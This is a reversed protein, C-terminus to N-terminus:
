AFGLLQPFFFYIVVVALVIAGIIALAYKLTSHKGKRPQDADTRKKEGDELNQEREIKQGNAKRLRLFQCSNM